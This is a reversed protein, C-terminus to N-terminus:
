QPLNCLPSRGCQQSLQTLFPPNSAYPDLSSRPSRSTSLASQVSHPEPHSTGADPQTRPLRRPPRWRSPAPGPRLWSASPPTVCWLSLGGSGASGWGPGSGRCAARAGPHTRRQRRVEQPGAGVPPNPIPLRSPRGSIKSGSASPLCLTPAPNPPEAVFVLSLTGSSPITYNTVDSSHQNAHLHFLADQMRHLPPLSPSPQAAPM